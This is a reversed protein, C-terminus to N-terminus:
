AVRGDRALRVGSGQVCGWTARRHKSRLWRWVRQWLYHSLYAFTASSVGPRFYACWGRVAQNLRRILEDLPQSVEVQRCLKKM